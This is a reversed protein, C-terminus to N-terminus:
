PAPGVGSIHPPVHCVHQSTNGPCSDLLQSQCPQGDGKKKKEKKIVRLGLTSHHAFDILRLYSGAEPGSCMTLPTAGDKKNKRARYRRKIPVTSIFSFSWLQCPNYAPFVCFRPFDAARGNCIRCFRSFNVTPFLQRDSRGAEPPLHPAASYMRLKQPRRCSKRDVLSTSTLSGPFPFEFEWPVLGTWGIMMVIFHIRVLLNDILFEREATQRARSPLHPATTRRRKPARRGTSQSTSQRPSPRGRKRALGRYV